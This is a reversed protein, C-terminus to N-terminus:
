HFLEKTVSSFPKYFRVQIEAGNVNGNQFDIKDQAIQFGLEVFKVIGIVVACAIKAPNPVEVLVLTIGDQIFDCAIESGLAVGTSVLLGQLSSAMNDFDFTRDQDCGSWFEGELSRVFSSYTRGSGYGPPFEECADFGDDNYNPFFL